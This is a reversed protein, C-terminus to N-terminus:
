RDRFIAFPVIARLLARMVRARARNGMIANTTQGKIHADRPKIECFLGAALAM